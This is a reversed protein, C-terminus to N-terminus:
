NRSVRLLLAVCLVIQLLNYLKLVTKLQFQERKEMFKPLVHRIAVWYILALSIVPFPSSFWFSDKVRPDALDENVYKYADMMM